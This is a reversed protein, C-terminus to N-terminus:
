FTGNASIYSFIKKLFYSFNKSPQDKKNKSRPFNGASIYSTKKFLEMERFILFSKESFINSNKKGLKKSRASFLADSLEM